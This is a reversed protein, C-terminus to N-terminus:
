NPQILQPLESFNSALTDVWGQSAGPRSAGGLFYGVHRVHEVTAPDFYGYTELSLIQSVRVNRFERRRESLARLLTPPEGVGTPVVIADGDQVAEIADHAAQRKERYQEQVSM